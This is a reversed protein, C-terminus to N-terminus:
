RVFVFVVTKEIYIAVHDLNHSSIMVAFYQHMPGSKRSASSYLFLEGQCRGDWTCSCRILPPAVTCLAINLIINLRKQRSLSIIRLSKASLAQATLLRRRTAGTSRETDRKCRKAFGVSRRTDSICPGRQYRQLIVCRVICLRCAVLNQICSYIPINSLASGHVRCNYEMLSIVSEIVGTIITIVSYITRRSKFGLSM